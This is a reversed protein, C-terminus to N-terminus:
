EVKESNSDLKTGKTAPPPLAKLFKTYKPLELLLARTPEGRGRIAGTRERQNRTGYGFCYSVTFDIVM